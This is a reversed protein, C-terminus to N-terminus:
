RKPKYIVILQHTHEQGGGQHRYRVIGEIGAVGQFRYSYGRLLSVVGGLGVRDKCELVFMSIYVIQIYTFIIHVYYLNNRTNRQLKFHFLHQHAARDEEEQDTERLVTM